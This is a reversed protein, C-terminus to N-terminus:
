NYGLRILLEIKQAMMSISPKGNKRPFTQAVQPGEPGAQARLCFKFWLLDSIEPDLSVM